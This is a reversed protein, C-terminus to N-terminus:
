DSVESKKDKVAYDTEALWLEFVWITISVVTHGMKHAKDRVAKTVSLPQRIAMQPCKTPMLIKDYTNLYDFDGNLFRKFLYRILSNYTKLHDCNKGEIELDIRLKKMRDLLRKRLDETVRLTLQPDLNGGNDRERKQKIRSIYRYNASVLSKEVKITLPEM